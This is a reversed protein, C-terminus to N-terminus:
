NSENGISDATSSSDDEDQPANFREEQGHFMRIINTRHRVVILLPVLLSFMALSWNKQSFPVPRLEWMQCVAFTVAALVSGLAVIRTIIFNLAFVGAAAALATPGLIMVVGLSTAVGKGGRFKLWCPFIHGLITAVGCGVQLHGYMVHQSTLVLGPLLLTPLLGKLCDLILVLLGWRSGIERAVNTAGINGSGLVRIDVGVIHRATLYGFPVSGIVYATLIASVAAATPNMTPDDPTDRHAHQPSRESSEAEVGAVGRSDQFVSCGSKM